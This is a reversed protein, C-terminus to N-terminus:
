IWRHSLSLVPLLCAISKLISSRELRNCNLVPFAYSRSVKDMMKIVDPYGQGTKTDREAETKCANASGYVLTSQDIPLVSMAILRYGLYDILIMYPVHLGPIRLNYLQIVSLLEHGGVKIGIITLKAMDLSVGAEINNEYFYCFPFKFLINNIVFKSGGAVGRSDAMPSIIYKPEPKRVKEPTSALTPITTAPIPIVEASAYSDYSLPIHLVGPPATGQIAQEIREKIQRFMLGEELCETFLDSLRQERCFRAIEPLTNLEHLRTILGCIDREKGYLVHAASTAGINREQERHDEPSLCHQHIIMKGWLTASQVFYDHWRLKHDYFELRKEITTMPESEIQQMKAEIVLPSLWWAESRSIQIEDLWRHSYSGCSLRSARVLQERLAAPTSASCLINLRTDVQANTSIAELAEKDTM